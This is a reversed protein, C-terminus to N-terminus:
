WTSLLVFSSVVRSSLASIGLLLRPIREISGLIELCPRAGLGAAPRPFINSSINSSYAGHRGACARQAPRWTVAAAQDAFHETSQLAVFVTDIGLLAPRLSEPRNLDGEVLEPYETDAGFLARATTPNRVLARVPQGAAQLGRVVYRGNTGTAGIVLITM